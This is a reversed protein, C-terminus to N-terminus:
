LAASAALVDSTGSPFTPAPAPAVIPLVAPLARAIFLPRPLAARVIGSPVMTAAITATLATPSAMSGDVAFDDRTRVGSPRPGGVRAGDQTRAARRRRGDTAVRRKSDDRGVDCERFRLRRFHGLHRVVAASSRDEGACVGESPSVIKASAVPAFVPAASTSADALQGSLAIASAMRRATRCACLM